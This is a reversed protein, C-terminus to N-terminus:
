LRFQQTSQEPKQQKHRCIRAAVCDSGQVLSPHVGLTHAKRKGSVMTMGGAPPTHTHPWSIFIAPFKTGPVRSIPFDSRRMHSRKGPQSGRRRPTPTRSTGAVGPPRGQYAHAPPTGSRGAAVTGCHLCLPGYVELDWAFRSQLMVTAVFSACSPPSTHPRTGTINTVTSTSTTSQQSSTESPLSAVRGSCARRAEQHNNQQERTCASRGPGAWM